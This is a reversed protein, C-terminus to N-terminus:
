SAKCIHSLCKQLMKKCRSQRLDEFPMESDYPHILTQPAESNNNYFLFVSLIADIELVGTLKYVM